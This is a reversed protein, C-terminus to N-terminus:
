YLNYMLDVDEEIPSSFSPLRALKAFVSEYLTHKTGEHVSTNYSFMAPNLWADWDNGKSNIYM